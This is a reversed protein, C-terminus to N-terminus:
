RPSHQRARATFLDRELADARAAAAERERGARAAFAQAELAKSEAAQCRSRMVRFAAMVQVERRARMRKVHRPTCGLARAIDAVAWGAGSLDAVVWAKDGEALDGIRLRGQIVAETTAPDPEWWTGNDM